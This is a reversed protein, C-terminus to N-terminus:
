AFRDIKSTQCPESYAKSAAMITRLNGILHLLMKKLSYFTVRVFRQYYPLLAYRLVPTLLFCIVGFKRFFSNKVGQYASTRTRILPYSINMKRFIQSGKNEQFVRKSIRGKAKNGVFHKAINETNM